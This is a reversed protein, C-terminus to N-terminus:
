QSPPRSLKAASRARPSWITCNKGSMTSMALFKWGDRALQASTIAPDAGWVGPWNGLEPPTDAPPIGEQSQALAPAGVLLITAAFLARLM